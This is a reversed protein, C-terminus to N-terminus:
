KRRGAPNDIVRGVPAGRSGYATLLMHSPPLVGPSYLPAASYEVVEGARVRRAVDQEFDRMHPSNTPTQTLTVIDQMKKGSGGLDKAHLHGRAENNKTGNGKWGPPKLRRNASSGTGIVPASLTVDVGLAQGQANVGRNRVSPRSWTPHAVEGRWPRTAGAGSTPRPAFGLMATDAVAGAALAADRARPSVGMASAIGYGVGALPSNEMLIIRDVAQRRKELEARSVLPDDIPVLVNARGNDIEEYYRGDIKTTRDRWRDSLKFRNQIPSHFEKDIAVDISSRLRSAAAEKREKELRDQRLMADYREGAEDPVSRPNGRPMQAM